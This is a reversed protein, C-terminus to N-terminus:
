WSTPATSPQLSPMFASTSPLTSLAAAPMPMVPGCKVTCDILATQEDAVRGRDAAQALDIIPPTRPRRRVPRLVAARRAPMM